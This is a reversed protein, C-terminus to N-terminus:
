RNPRFMPPPEAIREKARELEAVLASGGRTAVRELEPLTERAWDRLFGTARVVRVASVEDGREVAAELWPVACDALLPALRYFHPGFAYDTPQFRLFAELARARELPENVVDAVLLAQLAWCVVSEDAHGLCSWLEPALAASGLAAAGWLAMELQKPDAVRAIAGRLVPVADEGLGAVDRALEPEARLHGEIAAIAQPGGLAVLLAVRSRRACRSSELPRAEIADVAGRARPGLERVLWDYGPDHARAVIAKVAPEDLWRAAASLAHLAAHARETRVHTPVPLGARAYRREVRPTRELPEHEDSMALLEPWVSPDLRCWATCPMGRARCVAAVQPALDRLPEPALRALLGLAEERVHEAVAEDLLGEFLARVDRTPEITTIVWIAVVRLEPPEERALEVLDRGLSEGREHLALWGLWAYGRVHLSPHRALAEISAVSRPTDDMSLLLAEAECLARWTLDYATQPRVGDLLTRLTWRVVRGRHQERRQARIAEPGPIRLVAQLLVEGAVGHNPFLAELPWPLAALLAPAARLTIHQSLFDAASAELGIRAIEAERLREHLQTLLAETDSEM